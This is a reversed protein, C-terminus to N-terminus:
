WNWGVVTQVTHFCGSVYLSYLKWKQQKRPILHFYGLVHILCPIKLYNEQYPFMRFCTTLLTFCGFVHILCPMKLYNEHYSFMRVGTTLFTKMKTTEKTHSQFCGLVHTLCPMKLYNEHYPFMRFCTALSTKIKTTEKNHSQFCGLVHTLCPMKLYNGHYPFMRFHLQPLHTNWREITKHYPSMRLNPFVSNM